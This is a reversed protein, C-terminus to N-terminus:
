HALMTEVVFSHFCSTTECWNNETITSGAEGAQDVATPLAYHVVDAGVWGGLWDKYHDIAIRKAYVIIRAWMFSKTREPSTLCSRRRPISLIVLCAPM